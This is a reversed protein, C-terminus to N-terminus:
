ADLQNIIEVTDEFFEGTLLQRFVANEVHFLHSTLVSSAREADGQIIAELIEIHESISQPLRTLDTKSIRRVRNLHPKLAIISDAVYRNTTFSIVMEDFEAAYKYFDSVYRHDASNRALKRFAGLLENVRKSVEPKTKSVKVVASLAASEVLRRFAFLDRAGQLTIRSVTPARRPEIVVLGEAALQRLAERVPTRSFGTKEVLAIEPLAQGASFEGSEIADRLIRYVQESKGKWM